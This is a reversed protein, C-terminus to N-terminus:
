TRNRGKLAMYSLTGACGATGFLFGLVPLYFLSQPVIRFLALLGSALVLWLLCLCNLGRGWNKRDSWKCVVWALCFGGAVSSLLGLAVLATLKLGREDAFHYIDRSFLLILVGFTTYFGLTVVKKKWSIKRNEPNRGQMNRKTEM